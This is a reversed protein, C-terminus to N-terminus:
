GYSRHHGISANRLAASAAFGNTRAHHTGESLTVDATAGSPCWACCTTYWFRTLPVGPCGFRTPVEVNHFDTQFPTFDYCSHEHRSAFSPM